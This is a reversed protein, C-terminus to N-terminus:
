EFASEIEAISVGLLTGALTDLAAADGTFHFTRHVHTLSEGQALAVVPSSTEIEYFPGLPTAGPTLPGDNYSNVVDGAYPKSQVEWTSSVYDAPGEPLSFQVITLVRRDPDYSGAINKARPFSVGLKGRQKGDARLFIAKDKVRLREPPIRGFYDDRVVQGEAERKYPIVVTARPGPPFMGLIWISVLGTEKRLPAAGSNSLRNDSEYAVAAVGTPLSRGLAAVMASQDLLRVSRVVHLRLEIGVYNVLQIDREFRLESESQQTVPWAGWDLEPPVQWNAYEFAAGPQFYLAYNGGEPGLWFRDEGGVVSMHPTPQNLEIGPRHVYGFSAGTAGQASSTMVRGQYEPAVAVQAQGDRSKLVVVRTHQSLFALDYAFTGPAANDAAAPKDQSSMAERGRPTACACLALSCAFAITRHNM